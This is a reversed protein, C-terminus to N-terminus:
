CATAWASPWRAAAAGEGIVVAVIIPVPLAAMERLNGAIAEAQGAGRRRHGPYAGPRTSSPSWPSASSRPWSCSACAKRYGEPHPMGFNRAIKERTDRGKQHGIVVVSHGRLPSAAWSPRTTATSATATCSSSTTSCCGAGLRAHAASPIAPSSPASGPAHPQRLDAPPPPGPAGRAQAIEDRAAAPDDEAQLAAIRNELELLPQEFDLADPMSWWSRRGARAPKRGEPSWSPAPTWPLAARACSSKRARAAARARVGPRRGSAGRLARAARGARRRSDEGARVRIRCRTRRAARRQAARGAAALAQELLRVEEALVVRGKDGDDVRGRVLLPSAGSRLAAAAKYPEPFVTVEVTGDMDELTVFAMRNGSKTATEKLAAVHGLLTVRRRPEQRRLDASSTVGLSEVVSEYRALPHGSVYFGLVEKEFALRQDDDWEPVM